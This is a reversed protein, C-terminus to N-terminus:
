HGAECVFRWAEGCPEDNWTALPSYHNVQGCDELIGGNPEGPEWASWSFPLGSVWDFTGEQGQDTAGIWWAGPALAAAAASVFANEPDSGISTLHYGKSACETEALGWAQLHDCFLYAHGGYVEWSCGCDVGDDITGDLDDDIGNCTEVPDCGDPIGDADVDPHDDFGACIDCDDPVGDADADLTDDGDACVDCADPVTDQDVDLQDDANPCADRSDCVGDADADPLGDDVAGNADDDLGNCTEIGVIMSISASARQGLTDEVWLTLEHAGPSLDLDSSVSGDPGPSDPPFAGDISSEWWVQLAASQDEADTAFGTVAVKGTGVTVGDAPSSISASPALDDIVTVTVWDLSSLGGIDVAEFWFVASGPVGPAECVSEGDVNPPIGACLDDGGTYWRVDLVQPSDPPDSVFGSLVIPQGEALRAGPAPSDIRVTPATNLGYLASESCGPSGALAVLLIPGLRRTMTM